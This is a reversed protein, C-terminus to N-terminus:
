YEWLDHEWNFLNDKIRESEFLAGMPDDKFEPLENISLDFENSQKTIYSSFLREEFFDNYTITTADNQRNYIVERVAIKRFENYDIWCLNQEGLDEGARKMMFLPAIAIIRPFFQSRQKDFIWEESILYRTITSWELPSITDITTTFDPNLTDAIDISLPTSGRKGIQDVTYARNMTDSRYAKLKGFGSGEGSLINNRLVKWLPNGPWGLPLNKKERIDIIRQIRKAYVADAERLSPFPIAKREKIALKDFAREMFVNEPPNIKKNDGVSQATAVMAIMCGMAALFINKRM